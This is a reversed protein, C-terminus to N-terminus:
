WSERNNASTYLAMTQNEALRREISSAPGTRQAIHKFGNDVFVSSCVFIKAADSLSSDQNSPQEESLMRNIPFVPTTRRLGFPQVESNHPTSHVAINQLTNVILRDPNQSAQTKGRKHSTSDKGPASRSISAKIAM